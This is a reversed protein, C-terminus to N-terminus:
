RVFSVTRAPAALLALLEDDFAAITVSVRAMELSGVFEGVFSAEVPIGRQALTARVARHILTNSSRRRRGSGTSWCRLGPCVTPASTM